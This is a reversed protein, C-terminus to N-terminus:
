LLDVLHRCKIALGHKRACARLHLVCAPDSSTITDAGAGIASALVQRGLESGIAEFYNNFLENDGCTLAPEGLDVLRLGKVQGLLQRPEEKLKYDRLTPSHDVYAVTHNYGKDSPMYPVVHCLFDSIDYMKDALQRCEQWRDSDAFLQGFRTKVYAACGSGCSVVYREHRFADMMREGLKRAGKTDGCEHLLRGCCTLKEPYNCDVGHRALLQTMRAATNPSYQDICCPIFVGVTLKNSDMITQYDSLGVAHPRAM